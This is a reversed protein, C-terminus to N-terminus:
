YEKDEEDPKKGQKELIKAEQDAANVLSPRQVQYWQEYEKYGERNESKADAQWAALFADYYKLREANSKWSLGGFRGADRTPQKADLLRYALYVLSDAPSSYMTPGGNFSSGMQLANYIHINKLLAPFAAQVKRDVLAEGLENLLSPGQQGFQMQMQMQVPDTLTELLKVLIKDARDGPVAVLLKVAATNWAQMDAGPNNQGMARMQMLRMQMMQPNNQDGLYLAIYGKKLLDSVPELYVVPVQPKGKDQPASEVAVTMLKTVFGPDKDDFLSCFFVAQAETDPKAAVLKDIWAARTEADAGVFGAYDAPIAKKLMADVLNRKTAPIRLLFQEYELKSKVQGALLALLKREDPTDEDPPVRFLAELISDMEARVQTAAKDRTPADEDALGGRLERLREILAQTAPAPPKPATPQTVAPADPAPAPEGATLSPLCAAMVTFGLSRLIAAPRPLHLIPM